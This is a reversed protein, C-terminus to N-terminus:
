QAGVQLQKKAGVQLLQKRYKELSAEPLEVYGRFIM